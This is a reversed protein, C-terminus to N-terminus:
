KNNKPSIQIEPSGLFYFVICKKLWNTKKAKQFTQPYFILSYYFSNLSQNVSKNTNRYEYTKM